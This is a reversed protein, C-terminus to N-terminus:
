RSGTASAEQEQAEAEAAGAARQLVRERAAAQVAADSPEGAPAPAESTVTQSAPAPTTQVTIEDPNLYKEEVRAAGAPPPDESYTVRGDRDVWKWVKVTQAEAATMAVFVAVVTTLIAKM